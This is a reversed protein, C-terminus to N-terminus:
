GQGTDLIRGICILLMPGHAGAVWDVEGHTSVEVPQCYFGTTRAVHFGTLARSLQRQQIRNCLGLM